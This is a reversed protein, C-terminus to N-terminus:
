LKTLVQLRNHDCATRGYVAFLTEGCVDIWSGDNIKVEMRFLSM